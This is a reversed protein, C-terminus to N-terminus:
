SVVSGGTAAGTATRNRAAVALATGIILFLGAVLYAFYIFLNDALAPIVGPAVLGAVITAAALLLTAQGPRNNTLLGGVVGIIGAAVTIWGGVVATDVQSAFSAVAGCAVALLGGVIGM